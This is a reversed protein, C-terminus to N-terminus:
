ECEHRVPKMPSRQMQTAVGFNAVRRTEILKVGTFNSCNWTQTGSHLAAPNIEFRGDV